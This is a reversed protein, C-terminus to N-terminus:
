IVFKYPSNQFLCKFITRGSQPFTHSTILESFFRWHIKQLVKYSGRNLKFKFKHNVDIISTLFISIDRSRARCNRAVNMNIMIEYIIVTHIFIISIYVNPNMFKIYVEFIRNEIYFFGVGNKYGGERKRDVDLVTSRIM